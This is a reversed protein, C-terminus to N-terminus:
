YTNQNLRALFKNLQQYISMSFSKAIKDSLAQKETYTLLLVQYGQNIKDTIFQDSTLLEDVLGLEKAKAGYWYEGTAVQELNISPRMSKVYEKFFEHTQELQEIFKTEGKQNIEGFLSITKKFEGATYEKYDVDYKKLLRNFNPVGAIVGISGITAFPASLIQNAVCAMLYGGSAAITDVSVTLYIKADVLRKLQSSALGYDSVHGGGSEILCLVQDSQPNATQLIASIEHRIHLVESAHLDGNFKIVFLTKKDESLSENKKTLKKIATKYNSKSLLMPWLSYKWELDRQDLSEIELEGRSLTKRKNLLFVLLAGVLGLIIFLGLIQIIFSFLSEM